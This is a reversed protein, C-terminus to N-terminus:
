GQKLDLLCVGGELIAQGIKSGFQVAADKFTQAKFAFGSCCGEADQVYGSEGAQCTKQKKAPREESTGTDQQQQQQGSSSGPQPNQIGTRIRDNLEAATLSTVQKELPQRSVISVGINGNFGPVCTLTRSVCVFPPLSSRPTLSTSVVKAPM